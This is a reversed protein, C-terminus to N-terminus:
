RGVRAAAARWPADDGCPEYRTIQQTQRVLARMADLGGSVVGAARAQVLVNGLATAEVPGALVPLGTADATLRCLLENRAGGGVLHLASPTVGALEGAQRVARRHALALSDLVCRTITAPSVDPPMGAARCLRSSMDGPPLFVPDDLDVVRRLAPERAAAALLDSIDPSGWERMCEQLPWLGMVNRLYRVTGDVGGENTFNAERSADSLVPHALELGVLSWTGSSVYAFNNHDAPVAVVASATDHSGVAVVPTGHFHGILDGPRRIAPFLDARLGLDEILSWSWNGTRVDLLGTTSANTYEAGTEGTLWYALLDPIMLLKAAARYQPTGAAALLQYVTNFPLRQLGSIPYLDRVRGAIGDTRADRYHVPNGLLAGSADILGYDVAWSDIGISDVPGAKGLGDLVGKYLSLIDWHLTGGAHVPENAFRHVVDLELKGDHFTGAVVRGSSAGLDVAAFRHTM